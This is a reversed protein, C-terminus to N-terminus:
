PFISLDWNRVESVQEVEAVPDEMDSPIYGNCSSEVPVHATPTMSDLKDNLWRDTNESEGGTPTDSMETEQVLDSSTDDPSSKTIVPSLGTPEVEDYKPNDLRENQKWFM